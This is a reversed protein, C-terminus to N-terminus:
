VIPLSNPTSFDLALHSLYGFLFAKTASTLRPDLQEINGTSSMGWVNLAAASFSHFTSRHNPHYAPEMKDPISAGAIGALANILLQLFDFEASPDDWKTQQYEYLSVIAGAIAGASAHTKFNPM